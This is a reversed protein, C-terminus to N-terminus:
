AFTWGDAELAKKAAEYTNKTVLLYDTDRITLKPRSRALKQKSPSM